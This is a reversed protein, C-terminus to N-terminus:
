VEGAPIAIAASLVTKPRESDAPEHFGPQSRGRMDLVATFSARPAARQKLNGAIEWFANSHNM